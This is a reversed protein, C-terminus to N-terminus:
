QFLKAANGLVGESSHAATQQVRSNEVYELQETSMRPQVIFISVLRRM